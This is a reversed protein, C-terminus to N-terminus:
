RPLSLGGPRGTGWKASVEPFDAESHETGSGNAKPFHFHMPIFVAPLLNRGAASLAPYARQDFYPNSRSTVDANLTHTEAILIYCVRAATDIYNLFNNKFMEPAGKKLRYPIPPLSHKLETDLICRLARHTCVAPCPFPSIRM